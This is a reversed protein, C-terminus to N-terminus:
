SPEAQKSWPGAPPWAADFAQGATMCDWLPGLFEAIREGVAAFSAPPPILVAGSALYRGWRAAMDSLRYFGPTLAERAERTWPTGRRELLTNRAARSM